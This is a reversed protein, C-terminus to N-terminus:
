PMVRFCDSTCSFDQLQEKSVVQQEEQPLFELLNTAIEVLKSRFLDDSIKGPFVSAMGRLKSGYIMCVDSPLGSEPNQACHDFLAIAESLRPTPDNVHNYLCTLKAWLKQRLSLSSWKPATRYALAYVVDDYMQEIKLYTSAEEFEEPQLSLFRERRNAKEAQVMRPLCAAAGANGICCLHLQFYPVAKLTREDFKKGQEILERRLEAFDRQPIDLAEVEIKM